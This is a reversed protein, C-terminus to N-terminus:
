FLFNSLPIGLVLFIVLLCVFTIVGYRYLDGSKVWNSNGFMLSAYPSAAPTIFAIHISLLLMSILPIPNFGMELAFSYIVPTFMLGVTTNAMFNTLVAAVVFIVVCMFIAGHGEFVPGLVSLISEAVGTDSSMMITSISLLAASLVITDWVVGKSAADQFQLLPKGDIVTIAMLTLILVIPLTNGFGAFYQGLMSQAPTFGIGCYLVVVLVVYALIVKQRTSLNLNSKDVVSDDIHAMMGLDIRLLYKCMLIYGAYAVLWLSVNFLAYLGFNLSMTNESIQKLLANVFLPNGRFLWTASSGLGGLTIGIFMVTPYKTFPKIDYMKCTSALIGWFIIMAPFDSSIAGTFMTGVILFYSFLWPRGKIFNRSILWTALFETIHNNELVAVFVFFFIMLMISDSGLGASLITSVPAVGLAAMAVMALMCPWAPTCFTVGYIAGILVGLIKMGTETLLSVPPIFGVGFMLVITILMHVRTPVYKKHTSM